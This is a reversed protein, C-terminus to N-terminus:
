SFHTSGGRAGVQKAPFYAPRNQLKHKLKSFPGM